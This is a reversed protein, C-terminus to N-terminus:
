SASCVEKCWTRFDPESIRKLKDFENEKLSALHKRIMAVEGTPLRCEEARLSIYDINEEKTM